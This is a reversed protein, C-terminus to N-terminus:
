AAEMAHSPALDTTLQALAKDYDQLPVLSNKINAELLRGQLATYITKLSHGLSSEKETVLIGQMLVLLNQARSINEHKATLDGTEIAVQARRGYIRLGRWGHRIIAIGPEGDFISEDFISTDSM